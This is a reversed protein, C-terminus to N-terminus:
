HQLRVANVLENVIKAIQTSDQPNHNFPKAKIDLEEILTKYDVLIDLSTVKGEEIEISVPGELIRYYEDGGTHFAFGLDLTGNGLTDVKGETKSFIFSQWAEWYYSTKSLPSSSNFDAPKKQNMDAPVGVGFRIGDYTKADIQDITMTYGKQADNLDDFTMDVLEVDKLHTNSTGSFLELDSILMTLLTFEVHQGNPFPKSSFTTLPQGDYLPIFHLALSGEKDKKCSFMTIASLVVLSLCILRKM